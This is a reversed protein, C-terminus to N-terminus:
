EAVLQHLAWWTSENSVNGHGKITRSGDIGVVEPPAGESLEPYPTGPDLISTLREGAGRPGFGGLAAFRSPPDTPGRGATLLEGLDQRRRLALHFTKTLPIDHESFTSLIPRRVRDPVQHYGGAHDTGPVQDAFCLHNVAPQLLLMSHVKRDSEIRSTASLVVKGGYSHGILHVRPAPDAGLLQDLLPAVGKSGVRGARDKMQYVTLLRIVQRPVLRRIADGIGAVLAEGDPSRTTGFDTRLDRDDEMAGESEIEARMWAGLIEEASPTPGPDEEDGAAYVPRVIEAFQMAEEETWADRQALEYFVGLQDGEIESSVEAIWRREEGVQQDTRSRSAGAIHPAEEDEWVLATSPWFIGVLLPKYDPPFPIGQSSRLSMFGRIFDEYRATAVAWDNNWGHSFVFVDTFDKESTEKLLHDRTRPAECLGRKDFPIIYYPFELGNERITRYPGIPLDGAM